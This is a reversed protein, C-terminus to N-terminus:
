RRVGAMIVDFVINFHFPSPAFGQHLEFKVEFNVTMDLATKIIIKMNRHMKTTVKVYM